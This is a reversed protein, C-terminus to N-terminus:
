PFFRGQVSFGTRCREALAEAYDRVFQEASGPSGRIVALLDLASRADILSAEFDSSHVNVLSDDDMYADWAALMHRLASEIALTPFPFVYETTKM